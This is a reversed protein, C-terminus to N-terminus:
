TTGLTNHMYSARFKTGLVLHGRREEPDSDWLFNANAFSTFTLKQSVLQFSSHHKIGINEEYVSADRRSKIYGETYMHNM